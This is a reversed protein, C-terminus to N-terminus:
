LISLFFKIAGINQKLSSNSLKQNKILDYLYSKFTESNIRQKQDKCYQLFLKLKRCYSKQTSSSFDKIVMNKTFNEMHNTMINKEKIIYIILIKGHFM